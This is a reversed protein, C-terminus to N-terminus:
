EGAITENLVKILEQKSLGKTEIEYEKALEKLEKNPLDSIDFEEAKTEKINDQAEMEDGTQNEVEQNINGIDDNELVKFGKSKYLVNYAKETAYITKNDKILKM